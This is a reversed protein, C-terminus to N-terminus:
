LAILIRKTVFQFICKPLWKSRRIPRELESSLLTGTKGTFSRWVSRVRMGISARSMPRIHACSCFGIRLFRLPVTRTEDRTGRGAKRQFQM